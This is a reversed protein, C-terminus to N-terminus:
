EPLLMVTKSATIIIAEKAEVDDNVRSPKCFRRSKILKSRGSSQQLRGFVVYRKLLIMGGNLGDVLNKQGVQESGKVSVSIVSEM